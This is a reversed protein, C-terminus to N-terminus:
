YSTHIPLAVCSFTQTDVDVRMDIGVCNVHQLTFMCAPVLDAKGAAPTISISIITPVPLRPRPHVAAAPMVAMQLLRHGRMLKAQVGM